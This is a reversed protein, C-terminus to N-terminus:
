RNEIRIDEGVCAVWCRSSEEGIACRTQTAAEPRHSGTAIGAFPALAAFWARGFPKRPKDLITNKKHQITTRRHPTFTMILVPKRRILVDWNPTDFLITCPPILASITM